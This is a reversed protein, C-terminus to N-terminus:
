VSLFETSSCRLLAAADSARQRSPDVGPPHPPGIKATWRHHYYSVRTFCTLKTDHGHCRPNFTLKASSVTRDSCTLHTVPMVCLVSHTPTSGLWPAAAHAQMPSWSPLVCSLGLRRDRESMGLGFYAPLGLSGATNNVSRRKCGCNTILTPLCFSLSVQSIPVVDVSSSDQLVKPCRPVRSQWASSCFWQFLSNIVLCDVETHLIFLNTVAVRDFVNFLSAYRGMERWGKDAALTELLRSIAPRWSTRGLFKPTLASLKPRWEFKQCIHM